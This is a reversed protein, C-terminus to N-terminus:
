GAVPGAAVKALAARATALASAQLQSVTVPGYHGRHSKDLAQLSVTVLANRNRVVVTVLDNVDGGTRIVQLASFAAQGTGTLPTIAAKPLRSKRLPDALQHQATFWADTAGSDASGNGTALLSPQYAQLSVQLVRFVPPSDVTYSCQSLLSGANPQIQRRSTVGGLDTSLTASSLVRCADPVSRLDGRQLRNVFGDNRAAAQKPHLVWIVGAVLVVLAAAAGILTALRRKSRRKQGASVRSRGGGAPDQGAAPESGAAAPRRRRQGAPQATLAAWAPIGAGTDDFTGRQDPGPAAPPSDDSEPWEVAEPWQPESPWDESAPRGHMPEGDRWRGPQGPREQDLPEM